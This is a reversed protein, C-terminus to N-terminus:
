GDTVASGAPDAEVRAKGCPDPCTPERCEDRCPDLPVEVAVLVAKQVPVQRSVLRPVRVTYRETVTKPVQDYTTASGAVRSAATM